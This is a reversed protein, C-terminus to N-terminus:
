CSRGALRLTFSRSDGAAATGPLGPRPPQTPAESNPADRYEVDGAGDAEREANPLLTQFRAAPDPAVSVLRLSTAIFM